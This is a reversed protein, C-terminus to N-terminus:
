EDEEGFSGDDDGRGIFNFVVVKKIVVMIVLDLMLFVREVEEFIFGIKLNSFYNWLM